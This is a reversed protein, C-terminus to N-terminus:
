AKGKRRQEAKICAWCLGGVQAPKGPHFKCSNEKLRNRLAQIEGVAARLIAADKGGEAEDAWRRLITVIDPDFDKTTMYASDALAGPM